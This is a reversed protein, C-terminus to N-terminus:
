TGTKRIVISVAIDKCSAQNRDPDGNTAYSRTRTTTSGVILDDSTLVRGFLHGAEDNDFVDAFRSITSSFTFSGSDVGADEGDDYSQSLLLLDGARVPNSSSSTVAPFRTGEIDDCDTQGKWARVPNSSAGGNEITSMIAWAPHSGPFDITLRELQSGDARLDDATARKWYLVQNLDAQQGRCDFDPPSAQNDFACTAVPGKWADGRAPSLRDALTSASWFNTDDTRHLFLLLLDGAETGSPVRIRVTGDQSTGETSGVHRIAGTAWLEPSGESDTIEEDDDTPEDLSEDPDVCGLLLSSAAALGLWLSSRHPSLKFADSMM